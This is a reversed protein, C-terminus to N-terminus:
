EDSSGETSMEEGESMEGEAPMEGEKPMDNQDMEPTM